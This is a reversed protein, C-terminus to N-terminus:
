LYVICRRNQINGPQLFGPFYSFRKQGDSLFAKKQRGCRRLLRPLLYPRPRPNRYPLYVMTFAAHFAPCAFLLRSAPAMRSSVADAALSLSALCDEALLSSLAPAPFIVAKTRFCRTFVRCFTLQSICICVDINANRLKNIPNVFPFLFSVEPNQLYGTFFLM